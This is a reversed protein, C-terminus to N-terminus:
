VQSAVDLPPASVRVDAARQHKAFGVENAVSGAPFHMVTCKFCSKSRTWTIISLIQFLLPM